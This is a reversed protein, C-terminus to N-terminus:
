LEPPQLDPILTDAPCGEMQPANTPLDKRAEKLKLSQVDGTEAETEMHGRTDGPFAGTM